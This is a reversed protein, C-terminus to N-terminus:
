SAHRRKWAEFASRILALHNDIFMQETMNLRQDHYLLEILGRTCRGFATLIEHSEIMLEVECMNSFRNPASRVASGDPM